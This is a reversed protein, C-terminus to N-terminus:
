RRSLGIIKKGHTVYIGRKLQDLQGLIRRGQLDYIKNTDEDKKWRVVNVGMSEDPSITLSIRGSESDEVIDSLMFGVPKKTDGNYFCYNPLQMQDSLSVIEKSGPFSSAAISGMWENTTYSKGRLYSSVLLGGAPVVAVSPHGPNNNPADNMNVSEYPYDVHYVLLGHGYAYRNFGRKQVNEMVIYERNNDSNMLKYAKGGEVLPLLNDIECKEDEMLSSVDELETWEMTEQEWANYTVPAFGNRVYLGYDMISWTEMGQNNVYADSKTAYLDPLGLCHSFEHIFVGTGNIYDSYQPHFLESCCNFRTIRLEDNLKLNLSSAKAWITSDAGAQNQGYGAFIVCVLEIYGDKDNDYVSWDSVLDRAENMADTCFDSFKDDRGSKDKGGYYAMKQPLTVPGVVDFQPSFQDHSSTEFYKRVSAVNMQNHNGLDEQEEGNLYQNFARVPDNVTFDVDQFAALITLVRRTGSHQLYKGNGIAAARHSLAIKMGQEHFLARRAAQQRVVTQERSDRQAPEHALVDTASLQGQEDIQAIYYGKATSMVLAGDTTATWHHWEDGFQEITLLTGDAQKVTFPGRLAPAVEVGVASLWCCIALILYRKMMYVWKMAFTRIKRMNM